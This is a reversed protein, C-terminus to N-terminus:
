VRKRQFSLSRVKSCEGHTQDTIGKRLDGIREHVWFFALIGEFDREVVKEAMLTHERRGM